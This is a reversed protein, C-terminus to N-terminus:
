ENELINFVEEITNAIKFINERNDRLVGEKEMFDFYDLLIDFYNNLNFLVIKKNHRKLLKLTIIEFFEDLTGIGGPAIIFSDSNKLFLNKREDMTETYIFETDKRLTEIEDIWKPAIALIEGDNDLVGKSVAGMIGANGGGFVLKHGRKAIEAGLLYADELYESKINKSGAGYLCIKM